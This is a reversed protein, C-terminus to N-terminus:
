NAQMWTYTACISMISQKVIDQKQSNFYDQLVKTRTM